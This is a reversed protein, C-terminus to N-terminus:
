KQQRRRLMAEQEEPTQLNYKKKLDSSEKQRQQLKSSLSEILHELNNRNTIVSPLVEGVTREVLIGGVLRFARRKEDLPALTEEVLRHENRDMELETIKNILNACENQLDRFKIAAEQRDMTSSEEKVNEQVLVESM